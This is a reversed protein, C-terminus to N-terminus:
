LNMENIMRQTGYKEVFARVEPTSLWNTKVKTETLPLTALWRTFTNRPINMLQRLDKKTYPKLEFSKQNNEKKDSM